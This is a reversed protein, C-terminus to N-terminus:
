YVKKPKLQTEEVNMMREPYYLYTNNYQSDDNYETREDNEDITPIYLYIPPTSDFKPNEYYNYSKESTWNNQKYSFHWFLKGNIMPYYLKPPFKIKQKYQITGVSSDYVRTLDDVYGVPLDVYLGENYWLLNAMQKEGSKYIVPWTDYESSLVAFYLFLYSLETLFNLCNLM